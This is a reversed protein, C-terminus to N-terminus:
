EARWAQIALLREEFITAAVEAPWPEWPALGALSHIPDTELIPAGIGLVQRVEDPRWGVCHAAESAAAMVDAQKHEAHAQASWAPLDYRRAVAASLRAGVARFPEGLVAKLPSICDFGLFAEDADHLLELLQEAPTLPRGALQQRIALVLLSHQAVSLPLPWSSEGGWRYTRSLRVALDHDTWADPDPNILDLHRGSPLRMWARPPPGLM